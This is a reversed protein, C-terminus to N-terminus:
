KLESNPNFTKFIEKKRFQNIVIYVIGLIIVLLPVFLVNGWLIIGHYDDAIKRNIQPPEVSKGRVPILQENGVMWDITNQMLSINDVIGWGIFQSMWDSIFDRDGIVVIKTNNPSSEIIEYNEEETTEKSEDNEESNEPNEETEDQPREPVEKGKFYSDFSGQLYYGLTYKGENEVSPLRGGEQIYPLIDIPWKSGSKPLIGASSTTELFPTASVKSKDLNDDLNVSSIWGYQTVLNFKKTIDTEDYENVAVWQPYRYGRGTNFGQSGHILDENVVVGYNKVFDYLNHTRKSGEAPFPTNQQGLPLYNLYDPGVSNVLFAIPKGSMIYRDLHFLEWDSYKANTSIVILAEYDDVANEIEDFNVLEIQYFEESFQTLVQFGPNEFQGADRRVREIFQNFQPMGQLQSVFQNQVMTWMNMFDYNKVVLGIKAKNSLINVINDIITERFLLDNEQAMNIINPMNTNNNQYRFSIGYGTIYQRGKFLDISQSINIGARVAEDYQNQNQIIVEEVNIKNPNLKKIEELVGNVNDRVPNELHNQTIYTKIEMPQEAIRLLEEIPRSSVLKEIRKVLEYEMRNPDRLNIQMVEREAEYALNIGAIIQATTSQLRGPIEVTVPEIGIRKAEERLEDDEEGDGIEVFNYIFNQQGYSKFDDMLDQINRKITTGGMNAPIEESIYITISLPEELSRILDITVDSLSYAKSKTLDFQIPTSYMFINLLIILVFVLVGILYIKNKRNFFM